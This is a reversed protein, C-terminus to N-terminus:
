LTINTSGSIIAHLFIGDYKRIRAATKKNKKKYATALSQGFSSVLIEM